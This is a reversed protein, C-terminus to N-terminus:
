KDSKTNPYSGLWKIKETHKQVLKKIKEDEFHGEFDIYFWSSFDNAHKQPRSEIKLLNINQSYFDMLFNALAGPKHPTSALISTKDNEGKNATYDSIIIFRTQNKRKDEINEFRIPLKHLKAAVSSCIAASNPDQTCLKAAKATSEVSILEAKELAYSHLFSRCQDFAIDKSYIKTIKELEDQKSALCHHIDLHMQAIIFLDFSGLCDLTQAVIGQANNEIPIIGYKATKNHVSEFVDRISHLPLFESGSGFRKLAAQHTYSAVPGLYAIKQPYELNRSVAFIEWFITKVADKTLYKPTKACLRKIISEEREPRFISTNKSLKLEGVKEVFSMRRDLLALIEDDINDIEQRLDELNDSM